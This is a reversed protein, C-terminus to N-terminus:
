RKWDKLKKVLFIILYLPFIFIKWWYFHKDLLERTIKEASKERYIRKLPKSKTQYHHGIEHYLVRALLFKGLFPTLSFLKPYRMYVQDIGIEIWPLEGKSKPAYIGMANKYNHHSIKNVLVIKKLGTIYRQPVTKLLKEIRKEINILLKGEYCNKIIIDMDM